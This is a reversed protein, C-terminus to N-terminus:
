TNASLILAATADKAAAHTLRVFRSHGWSTDSRQSRFSAQIEPIDSGADSSPPALADGAANMVPTCLAASTFGHHDKEVLM